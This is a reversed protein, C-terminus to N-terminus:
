EAFALVDGGDVAEDGDAVDVRLRLRVQEDDRFPVDVAEVVDGLERGILVLAHEVEDGVDSCALAQAVVTDDDVGTGSGALRDKM